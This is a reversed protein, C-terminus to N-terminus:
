QLTGSILPFHRKKEAAADTFERANKRERHLFFAGRMGHAIMYLFIAASWHLDGNDLYELLTDAGLLLLASVAAVRSMKLIGCGLAAFILSEILAPTRINTKFVGFCELLVFVATVASLWLCAVAGYWAATRASSEDIIRPWLWNGASPSKLM